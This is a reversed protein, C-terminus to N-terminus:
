LPQNSCSERVNKDAGVRKYLAFGIVILEKYLAGIVIIEKCLGWAWGLKPRSVGPGVPQFSPLGKPQQRVVADLAGRGSGTLINM